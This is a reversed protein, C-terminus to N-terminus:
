WSATQAVLLIETLVAPLAQTTVVIIKFGAHLECTVYYVVRL